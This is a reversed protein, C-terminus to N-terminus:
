VCKDAVIAPGACAAPQPFPKSSRHTFGPRNNASSALHIQPAPPRSSSGAQHALSPQRPQDTRPHCGLCRSHNQLPQQRPRHRHNILIRPSLKPSPKTDTSTGSSSGSSSDHSNNTYATCSTYATRSTHTTCSTCRTTHGIHEARM